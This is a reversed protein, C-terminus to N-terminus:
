GNTYTYTNHYTYTNNNTDTGCPRHGAAGAACSFLM